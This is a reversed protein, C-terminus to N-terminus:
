IVEIEAQANGFKSQANVVIKKAGEWPRIIALAEGYYTDTEASQDEIRGMIKGPSGTNRSNSGGGCKAM